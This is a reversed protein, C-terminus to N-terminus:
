AASTTAAMKAQALGADGASSLVSGSGARYMNAQVPSSSRSSLSKRATM